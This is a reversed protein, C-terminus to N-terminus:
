RTLSRVMVPDMVPDIVPDNFKSLHIEDRGRKLTIMGTMGLWSRQPTRLVAAMPTFFTMGAM